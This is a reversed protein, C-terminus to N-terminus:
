LAGKVESEPSKASEKAAAEAEARAAVILIELAAIEEKLAKEQLALLGRRAFLEKLKDM